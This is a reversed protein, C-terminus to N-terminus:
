SVKKIFRFIRLKRHDMWATVARGASSLPASVLHRVKERRDAAIGSANSGRVDPVTLRGSDNGSDAISNSDGVIEIITCNPLFLLAASTRVIRFM